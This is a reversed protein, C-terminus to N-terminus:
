GYAIIVYVCLFLVGISLVNLVKHVTSSTNEFREEWSSNEAIWKLMRSSGLNLVGIIMVALPHLLNTLDSIGDQFLIFILDLLGIVLVIYGLIQPIKQNKILFNKSSLATAIKVMEPWDQYKIKDEM